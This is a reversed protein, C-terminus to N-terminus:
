MKIATFVMPVLNIMKDFALLSKQYILFGYPDLKYKIGNDNIPPKVTM